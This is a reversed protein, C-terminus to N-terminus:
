RGRSAYCRAGRRRRLDCAPGDARASAETATDRHHERHGGSGHAEASRREQAGSARTTHSRVEATPRSCRRCLREGLAEGEALPQRLCEVAHVVDAHASFGRGVKRPHACCATSAAWPVAPQWLSHQAAGRTRRTRGKVTRLHSLPQDVHESVHAHAHRPRQQGHPQLESRQGGLEVTM